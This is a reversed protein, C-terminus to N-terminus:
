HNLQQWKIRRKMAWSYFWYFAHKMLCYLQLILKSYLYNTMRTWLSACILSTEYERNKSEDYTASDRLKRTKKQVPCITFKCGYKTKQIVTHMHINKKVTLIWVGKPNIEQKIQRTQKRVPIRVTYTYYSLKNRVNYQM